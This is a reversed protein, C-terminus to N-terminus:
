LINVQINEYKYYINFKTYNINYLLYIIFITKIKNEDVCPQTYYQM